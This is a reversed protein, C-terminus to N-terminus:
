EVKQEEAEAEEGEGEVEPEAFIDEGALAKHFDSVVKDPVPYPVWEGKLASRVKKEPEERGSCLM